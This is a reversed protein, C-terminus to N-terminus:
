RLALNNVVYELLEEYATELERFRQSTEDKGGFAVENDEVIHGTTKFFLKGANSRQNSDSVYVMEATYLKNVKLVDNPVRISTLNNDNVKREWVTAGTTDKITYYTYKHSGVGSFLIFESGEIKFGGLEANNKDTTISVKPTVIVINNHSFGDGDKTLVIPKTWGYFTGDDFNLKVRAFYLDHADFDLEFDMSYLNVEDKDIDKVIVEDTFSPEYAVQYSTSKLTKNSPLKISRISVNSIAM